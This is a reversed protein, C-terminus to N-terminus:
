SRVSLPLLRIRAVFVFFIALVASLISWRLQEDIAGTILLLVQFLLFIILFGTLTLNQRSMSNEILSAAVGLGFAIILALYGASYFHYQFPSISFGFNLTLYNQADNYINLNDVSTLVGMRDRQDSTLFPRSIAAFLNHYGDPGFNGVYQLVTPWAQDHEQSGRNSISCAFSEKYTLYQVTHSTTNGSVWNVAATIINRGQLAVVFVAAVAAVSRWINSLYFTRSYLSAMFLGLVIGHLLAGRQFFIMSLLFFGALKLLSGQISVQQRGVLAGFITVAVGIITMITVLAFFVQSGPAALSLGTQRQGPLFALGYIAIAAVDVVICGILMWNAFIKLQFFDVKREKEQRRLSVALGTAFVALCVCAILVGQIYLQETYLYFPSFNGCLGSAIPRVCFSYIMVALMFQSPRFPTRTFMYALLGGTYILTLLTWGLYSQLM